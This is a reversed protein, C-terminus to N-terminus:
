NFTATGSAADFTISAIKAENSDVAAADAANTSPSSGVFRITTSGAKVKRLPIRVVVASGPVGNGASQNVKTVGVIIRSGSLTAQASKQSDTGSLADGATATGVSLVSPDSLLLNFAFGFIDQSTTPGTINVRLELTTNNTSSGTITVLNAAPATSSPTFTPPTPPPGSDDGGGGGGCSALTGLALTMVALVFLWRPTVSRAPKM